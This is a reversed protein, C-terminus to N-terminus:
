LRTDTTPIVVQSSTTHADERPSGVLARLQRLIRRKALYIFFLMLGRWCRLVIFAVNLVMGLVAGLGSLTLMLLKAVLETGGLLFILKIAMSTLKRQRHATRMDCVAEMNRGHRQLKWVVSAVIVSNCALIVFSPFFYFLLTARKNGIYCIGSETRGYDVRFTSYFDVLITILVIFTGTPWVAFSYRVFIDSNDNERRFPKFVTLWIDYALVMTWLHFLLSLWHLLIGVVICSTPNSFKSMSILATIDFVLLVLALNMVIRGPNNRLSKLVAHVLIVAAEAVISLVLLGASIIASALLFEDPLRMQSNKLCFRVGDRAPQYDKAHLILTNNNELTVSLSNNELLTYKNVGVLSTSCDSSLHFEDCTAAFSTRGQQTVVLWYIVDEFVKKEMGDRVVVNCSSTLNFNELLRPRHCIRGAGFYRSVNIGHILNVPVSELLTYSVSKMGSNWLSELSTANPFKRTIYHMSEKTTYTESSDHPVFYTDNATSHEEILIGGGILQICKLIDDERGRLEINIDNAKTIPAANRICEGFQYRYGEMCQYGTCDGSFIDFIKGEECIRVPKKQGYEQIGAEPSFGILISTPIMALPKRPKRSEITELFSKACSGASPIKAFERNYYCKLCHPNRLRTLVSDNIVLALAMYGECLEMERETCNAASASLPPQFKGKVISLYDWYAVLSYKRSKSDIELSCYELGVLSFAGSNFAQQLVQQMNHCSHIRVPIMQYEVEGHCLACAYNRYVLGYKDHVPIDFDSLVNNCKEHYPSVTHDCSGIMVESAVTFTSHFKKNMIRMNKLHKRRNALRLFHEIHEAPTMFASEPESALLKDICCTGDYWCADSCDCCMEKSKSSCQYGASPPIIRLFDFLAETNLPPTTATPPDISFMTIVHNMYLQVKILILLRKMNSELIQIECM